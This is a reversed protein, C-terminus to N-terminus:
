IAQALVVINNPKWRNRLMKSIIKKVKYYRNFAYLTKSALVSFGIIELEAKILDETYMRMHGNPNDKMTELGENMPVSLILYGQKRLMRKIDALLGFTKSPPVHELVELMFIADFAESKYNMEYLSELKFSGKFRKKLNKIANPSIDNGFIEIDKNKSLLKEVYGYGAGIDLIKRVGKPLFKYTVEIRDRTMGDPPTHDINEDIREDWFEGTNLNEISAHSSQYLKELEDFRNELAFKQRKKEIEFPDDKNV